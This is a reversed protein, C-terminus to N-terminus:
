FPETAGVKKCRKKGGSLLAGCFTAVGRFFRTWLRSIRFTVLTTVKPLERLYAERINYGRHTGKRIGHMLWHIANWKQTGPEKERLNKRERTREM